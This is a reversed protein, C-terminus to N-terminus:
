SVRKLAEITQRPEPRITYDASVDADRIIGRQDIVFRAALPLTWSNKFVKSLHVTRRERDIRIGGANLFTKGSVTLEADLDEATYM